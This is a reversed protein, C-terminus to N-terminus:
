DHEIAHLADAATWLAAGILILDKMLFGSWAPSLDPTTLLFSFTLLFAVIAGFSGLVSARPWKPRVGLLIGISIEVVGLLNSAGQVSTISYLWSLFPSHAVWPQITEAEAMTFKALGFVILFLVLGYRLTLAGLLEFPRARIAVRLTPYRQLRTYM